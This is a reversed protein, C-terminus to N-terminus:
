PHYQDSRYFETSIGGTTQGIFAPCSKEIKESQSGNQATFCFTGLIKVVLSPESKEQLTQNFDSWYNSRNLSSLIKRNKARAVM